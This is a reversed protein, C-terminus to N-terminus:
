LDQREACGSPSCFARERLPQFGVGECAQGDPQMAATQLHLSVSVPGRLDLKEMEPVFAKLEQFSAPGLSATCMKYSRLAQQPEKEPVRATLFCSQVFAPTPSQNAIGPWLSLVHPSVICLTSSKGLHRQVPIQNCLARSSTDYGQAGGDQFSKAPSSTHLSGLYMSCLNHTRCFSGM